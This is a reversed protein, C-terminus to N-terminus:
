IKEKIKLKHKECFQEHITIGNDFSYGFSTLLEQTNKFDDERLPDLKLYKMEPDDDESNRQYHLKCKSDLGWKSEAKKYFQEEPQYKGCLRCFFMWGTAGLIRRSLLNDFKKKGSM